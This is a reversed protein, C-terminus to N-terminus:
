SLATARTTMASVTMPIRPHHSARDFTPRAIRAVDSSWSVESACPISTPRINEIDHAMPPASTADVVADVGQLADDLGAGTLLDVGLSRSIRVVEHGDRELSAATRSGINGTAGAVAVRM